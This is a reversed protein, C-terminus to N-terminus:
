AVKPTRESILTALWVGPVALVLILSLTSFSPWADYPHGFAYFISLHNLWEPWRLSSVFYPLLYAAAIYADLLMVALRSRFWAVVVASLGAIALATLACAALLRAYGDWEIRLGLRWSFGLMPVLAVASIVTAGAVAAAVRELVLRTWSLPTSLLWEVRGQHLETAWTAAQSVTYAAIFPMILEGVMTLYNHELNGVGYVELIRKMFDSSNFFDIYTPELGVLLATFSATSLSWILLGLWGRLLNSGFVTGNRFRGHAIFGQGRARATRSLLPAGCDRREFLAIAGGVIAASLSLLLAMAGVDASFGPVLARSLNAYYFPTLYKIWDTGDFMGSVNNGIYMVTLVLASMGAAARNTRTFQSVLLGLAMGFVAACGGALLSIVSGGFNPWDAVQLAAGTGVGIGLAILLLLLALSAARQALLSRRSVGTSLLLDAAHQDEASRILKAGQVAAYVALFFNVLVVNHYNLYGGLTDLHEAPWRIPRMSEVAPMVSLELARPGGPYQRMEEALSLGTFFMAISGGSVWILASTRHERIAHTVLNPRLKM